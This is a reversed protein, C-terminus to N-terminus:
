EDPQNEGTEAMLADFELLEEPDFDTHSDASVADEKGSPCVNTSHGNGM